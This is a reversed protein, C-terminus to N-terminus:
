KYPIQSFPLCDCAFTFHVEELFYLMMVCFNRSKHWMKEAWIYKFIEEVRILFFLFLLFSNLALVVIMQILFFVFRYM